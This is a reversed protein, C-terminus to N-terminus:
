VTDSRWSFILDLSFPLAFRSALEGFFQRNCRAERDLRDARSGHEIYRRFRPARFVIRSISILSVLYVLSTADHPIQRDRRESISEGRREGGLIAQIM